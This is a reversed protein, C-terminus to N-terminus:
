SQVIDYVKKLKAVCRSVVSESVNLYFAQQRITM